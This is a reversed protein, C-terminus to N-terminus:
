RERTSGRVILEPALLVDKKVKNGEILDFLLEASIRGIDCRPQSITTLDIEPWGSFVIDDFGTIAIDKPVAFGKSEIWHKVQIAIHDSYCVIATPRLESELLNFLHNEDNCLVPEPLNQMAILRKHIEFRERSHTNVPFCYAFLRHRLDLLHRTLLHMAEQDDVKVCPVESDFNEYDCIVLPINNDVLTRLMRITEPEYNSVIIGDVSKERFLQLQSAESEVSNETMGVVLSYGKQSVVQGIGQMIENYFSDHINAILYGILRSKQARLGRGFNNPVYNLEKALSQIKHRTKQAILPDNNLARSVTGISVNAYEALKKLTVPM